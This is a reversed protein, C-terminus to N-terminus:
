IYIHTYIEYKFDASNDSLQKCWVMNCMELKSLISIHRSIIFESPHLVSPSAYRKFASISMKSHYKNDSLLIFLVPSLCIHASPNLLLHVALHGGRSLPTRNRPPHPFSEAPHGSLATGVGRGWSWLPRPAQPLVIVTLPSDEVWMVSCSKTKEKKFTSSLLDSKSPLHLLRKSLRRTPSNKPLAQLKNMCAM